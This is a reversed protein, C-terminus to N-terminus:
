NAKSRQQTETADVLSRFRHMEKQFDNETFISEPSWVSPSSIANPLWVEEPDVREKGYYVCSVPDCCPDFMGKMNVRGILEFEGAGTRKHIAFTSRKGALTIGAYGTAITGVGALLFCYHDFEPPCYPNRKKALLFYDTVDTKDVEERPLTELNDIGTFTVKENTEGDRPAITISHEEFTYLNQLNLRDWYCNTLIENSKTSGLFFIDFTAYKEPSFQAFRTDCVSYHINPAPVGSFELLHPLRTLCLCEGYSASKLSLQNLYGNLHPPPTLQTLLRSAIQHIKNYLPQPNPGVIILVNSKPGLGLLDRVLERAPLSAETMGPLPPMERVILGSSPDQPDWELHYFEDPVPIREGWYARPIECLKREGEANYEILMEVSDEFVNRVVGRASQRRSTSNNM